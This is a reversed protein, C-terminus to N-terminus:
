SARLMSCLCSLFCFCLFVLIFELLCVFLFDTCVQAALAELEEVETLKAMKKDHVAHWKEIAVRMTEALEPPVPPGEFLANVTQKYEFLLWEIVSLRGDSDQDIERILERMEQYTKARGLAELMRHSDVESLSSDTPNTLYRKFVDACELVEESRGTFEVAFQMLFFQSQDDPSKANIARFKELNQVTPDRSSTTKSGVKIEGIQYKKEVPDFSLRPLVPDTRTKAETASPPAASSAMATTIPAVSVSDNASEADPAAAPTASPPDKEVSESAPVELPM